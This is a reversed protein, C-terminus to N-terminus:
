ALSGDLFLYPVRSSAEQDKRSSQAQVQAVATRQVGGADVVGVRAVAAAVGIVQRGVSASAVEVMMVVVMVAM